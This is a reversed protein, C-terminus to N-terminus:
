KNEFPLQFTEPLEPIVKPAQRHTINVGQAPPYDIKKGALLEAATILQLRPHKGWASRYFEASAAEARMDVTPDQLTILVGIQAQEREIVGRLERVHAPTTKGAKVSFIIQKTQGGMGEDHFYLRGDIGKDKGKKHEVPFGSLKGVVWYQFQYPNEQALEQAEILTTPEGIVEYLVNSGFGDELRRKILNTAFCTIDIGSWRRKLRQSVAVATGCGCFPDLVLDGENSSTQIIRELLSEPKQTPYGLREKASANIIPIEWVDGLRRGESLYVKYPDQGKRKQWRYWRGDEDQKYHSDRKGSNEGYPERLDNFTFQDSKTYFLIVDHLRQYRKSKATYRKYSWVIENRFNAKGFIADMLIKLYHSATSDCHLYLSGTPKLVRHLEKLRPAMMSLYALLSGEELLLRFAQLTQALKGGEEVVTQYSRIAEEDWQWTDKFAKIQADSPENTMRAQYNRQSHFPPDVYILNVTEDKFYHQLIHLNDGYYLTNPVRM